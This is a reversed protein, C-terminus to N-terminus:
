AIAHAAEPGQPAAILGIALRRVSHHSWRSAHDIFSERAAPELADVVELLGTVLAAAGAAGLGDARGLVEGWRHPDRGALRAAAWRRLEAAPDGPDSRRSM